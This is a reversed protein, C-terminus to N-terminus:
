LWKATDNEAYGRKARKWFDWSKEKSFQTFKPTKM